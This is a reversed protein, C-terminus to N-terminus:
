SSAELPLQVTFTTAGPRSELRIHGGHEQVIRYAISLGLGTGDQKTSFFPYFVKERHEPPIGVGTDTFSVQVHRGEKQAQITLTGGQPMAELANLGLNLFVQQLMQSDARIHIAGDLHAQIQVGQPCRNRLLEASARLLLNLDFPEPRPRHPRSYNLFDTLIRNLRDMESLAIDMLAEKQAQELPATRLMEVAGRLSALPNRLEHAMHASLEGIAAMQQRHRAEAELRRIETLDQFMGIFGKPSGDEDRLASLVFSLTREEPGKRFTAEVRQEKLEGLFPFLELIGKGLAEQRGLGTIEQATRNFLVLRGSAETSLLGIPVNEVVEQNFLALEKYDIDRQRLRQATRELRGALYGSLYATLYLATIHTFINFLFDKERLEPSYPLPLLHYYQLDVLLGYLLGALTAVVYGAQRGLVIAGGIVILLLLFSFWSEIGGTLAVLTLVAAVDMSLQLYGHKRPGLRELLAIYLITLGYLAAILYAVASSYPFIEIGIELLFFSGLLVSAWLVRFAILARLRRLIAEQAM